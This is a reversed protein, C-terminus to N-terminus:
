TIPQTFEQRFGAQSTTHIAKRKSVWPRATCHRLTDLDTSVHASQLNSADFIRAPTRSYVAYSSTGCRSLAKMRCFRRWMSASCMM